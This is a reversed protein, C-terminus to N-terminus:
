AIVCVAYYFVNDLEKKIKNWSRLRLKSWDCDKEAPNLHHFDYLYYDFTNNCDICKGGKYEIAKNKYNIWRDICYDNFCSKCQSQHGNKRDPRKYFETIPKSQKCKSCTKVDNNKRNEFFWDSKTKLKHKKLWYRITTDSKNFHKSIERTSKGQMVLSNLTNYDM